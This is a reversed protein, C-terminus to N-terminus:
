RRCRRACRYAAAAAVLQTNTYRVDLGRQEYTTRRWREHGGAAADILQAGNWDMAQLRHLHMPDDGPLAPRWGSEGDQDFALQFRSRLVQNLAAAVGPAAVQGWDGYPYAFAIPHDPSNEDILSEASDLDEGIRQKYHAISEGPELRVLDSTPRGDVDRHPAAPRHPERAGLPRQLRLQLARELDRLLLQGTGPDAGIVFMTAKMGTAKLIPDAQLM